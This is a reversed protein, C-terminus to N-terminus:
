TFDVRMQIMDNRGVDLQVADGQVPLELMPEGHADLLRAQKPDRVCRWQAQGGFGGVELLRATVADAGDAAPRLSTLMLNPADLHFLWGVAGVHPPGMGTEIVPVPSVVGLATQMPQERDLGIALDFSLIEEGEVLLIADLMRGGHRQHFPLGGPFIVTKQSGSVLELYDPSEPRTHSTAHAAGCVGRALAAKEDRWAFRAGYYAHWPYGKPPQVPKIDIRIELLPRGIWARFRQRVSALVEDKADLLVSESVIEGLAPGTSTTRVQQLHTTSGPNFVVQQGLRNVRTRHDRIARLGGTAPDVEAEFYENRVCRDDALRMRGPPPPPGPPGERPFWAFGLAPVEVVVRGVGDNFQSAKVPGGQPIAGPLGGLELAVRRSFSCPNLLLYGPNNPQGRATLRRALATAVLDQAKALEERPPTPETETRDELRSLYGELPGGDPGEISGGLGRNLAALGWATDLQRRARVQRAFGSVPESREPGVPRGEPPNAREVLYDGHFDDASAPETYDGALVESLYASLTTWRGLVPALRTLELWDDYWPGAPASRHLLALTAAHDQMITHHLHHALHFFTQPTEAPLPARTFSQVQKGDPSPWNVVPTRHAPIVSEDFVVLIRQGIGTSQLLLPTQPHFGFRRRGFVRVERGLLHKTVAQGKLLNWMQSEIPLLADDRELYSGGCVDVLDAEVRERLKALREPQERGIRELMAAGAILNLPSGKDFSAPWPADLHADDLLALDVLHVSAPYIVDRASLMKEAAAKLCRRPADADEGSLAAVADQVDKWFPAAELMNEHSMAEFLAELMAHGFGLGLFPAAREADLDILPDPAAGESIRSRM